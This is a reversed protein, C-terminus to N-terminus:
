DHEDGNRGGGPDTALLVPKCATLDSDDDSRAIKWRLISGPQQPFAACVAMGIPSTEIDRGELEGLMRVGPLIDVAVVVYPVREAFSPHFARHVTTFTYVVGTPPVSIWDLEVEHCSSCMPRPPWQHEGCALCRRIRVEKRTLGEWYPAYLPDDPDPLLADSM